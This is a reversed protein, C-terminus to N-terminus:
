LTIGPSCLKDFKFGQRLLSLVFRYRISQQMKSVEKKNFAPNSTCKYEILVSYSSRGRRLNDPIQNNCKISVHVGFLCRGLFFMISKKFKDFHHKSQTALDTEFHKCFVNQSYEACLLALYVMHLMFEDNFNVLVQNIEDGPRLLWNSLMALEPLPKVVSVLEGMNLRDDKIYKWTLTHYLSLLQNFGSHLLLEVIPCEFHGMDLFNMLRFQWCSPCDCNETPFFLMRIIVIVRLTLYDM